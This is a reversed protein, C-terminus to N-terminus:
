IRWRRRSTYGENALQSGLSTMMYYWSSGLRRFFFMFFCISKVLKPHFHRCRFRAQGLPPFRLPSCKCISLSLFPVAAALEEVYGTLNVILVPTKFDTHRFMSELILELRAVGKQASTQEPSPRVRDGVKVDAEPSASEPFLLASARPLVSTPAGNEGEARGVPRGCIALESNLWRNKEVSDANVVIRGQSFRRVSTRQEGRPERTFLDIFRTECHQKFGFLAEMIQKEEDFLGRISSTRPHDPLLVVTASSNVNGSDNILSIGQCLSDCKTLQRAQPANFDM